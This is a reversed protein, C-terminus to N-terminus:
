KPISSKSKKHSAFIQLRETFAHHLSDTPQKFLMPGCRWKFCPRISSSLKFLKPKSRLMPTPYTPRLLGIIVDRLHHVTNKWTIRPRLERRYRTRTVLRGQFRGSIPSPLSFSCTSPNRDVNNFSFYRPTFVRKGLQVWLSISEHQSHKRNQTPLVTSQRLHIGEM